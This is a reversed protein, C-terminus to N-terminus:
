SSLKNEIWGTARRPLYVLLEILAIKWYNAVESWYYPRGVSRILSYDLAKSVLEPSLNPPMSNLNVEDVSCAWEIICLFHRKGRVYQEIPIKYARGVGNWRTSCFGDLAPEVRIKKISPKISSPDYVLLTVKEM